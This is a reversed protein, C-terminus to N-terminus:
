QPPSENNSSFECALTTKNLNKFYLECHQATAPAEKNKRMVAMKRAEVVDRRTWKKGTKSSHQSGGLANGREIARNSKRVLKSYKGRGM